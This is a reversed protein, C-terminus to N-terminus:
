LTPTKALLWASWKIVHTLNGAQSQAAALPDVIGWMAVNGSKANSHNRFMVMKKPWLQNDMHISIWYCNAFQIM